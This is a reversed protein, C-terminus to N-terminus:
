PWLIWALFFYITLHCRYMKLYVYNMNVTYFGACSSAFAIRAFYTDYGENYLEDFIQKAAGRFHGNGSHVMEQFDQSKIVATVRDQFVNLPIERPLQFALEHCENNRLEVDLEFLDHRRCFEEDLGAVLDDFMKKTRKGKGAALEKKKDVLGIYNEMMIAKVVKLEVLNNEFREEDALLLKRCVLCEVLEDEDTITRADHVLANGHSSVEVLNSDSTCPVSANISDQIRPQKRQPLIM